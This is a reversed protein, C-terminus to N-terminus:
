VSGSPAAKGISLLSEIVEDYSQRKHIKLEDLAAKTRRSVHITTGEDATGVETSM